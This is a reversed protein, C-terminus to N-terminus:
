QQQKKQQTPPPTFQIPPIIVPALGMRMLVSQVIERFYPWSDVLITSQAFIEFVEDDIPGGTEFDMLYSVDVSVFVDDANGKDAIKLSFDQFVRVFNDSIIQYYANKDIYIKQTDPSVDLKEDDFSASIKKTRINTMALNTNFKNFREELSTM